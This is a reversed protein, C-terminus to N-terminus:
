ANKVSECRAAIADGLRGLLANRQTMDLRSEVMEDRWHFDELWGCAPMAHWDFNDQGIQAELENLVSSFASGANRSYRTKAEKISEDDSYLDVKDAVVILWMPKRHHTWSTRIVQCTARLDELEEELRIARMAALDRTRMAEMAFESRTETYGFSVVHLIGSVPKKGIFLEDIGLLRNSSSRQGPIVALGLRQGTRRLTEREVQASRAPLEYDPGFAQGTLHDLLVTKGVGPMGTVALQSHKGRLTNMLRAWLGAIEERNRIAQGAIPIAWTPDPVVVM